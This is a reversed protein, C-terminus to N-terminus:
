TNIEERAFSVLTSKGIRDPALLEVIRGASYLPDRIDLECDGVYEVKNIRIDYRHLLQRLTTEDFWCTHEQNVFEINLGRLVTWHLAMANPTTLILEGQPPEKLHKKISKLFGDFNALHEILEGAVITDFQEDLNFDEANGQIAKYGNNNMKEIGEEHIDLGVCVDAYSDILDHMWLEEKDNMKAPNHAVCGIHLVSRNEICERFTNFVRKINRTRDDNARVCELYSALTIIGKFINGNGFHLNRQIIIESILDIYKYNYKKSISPTKM